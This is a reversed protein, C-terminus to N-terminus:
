RVGVQLMMVHVPASLVGGTLLLCRRRAPVCNGAAGGEGEGVEM